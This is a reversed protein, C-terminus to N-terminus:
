REIVLLRTSVSTGSSKFSGDPLDEWVAKVSNLWDRFEQSKRDTRFAFAPSMIAVLIGNPALMDYTKRVHDMDQGREFPPNMIVREFEGVESRSLQMIDDGILNYGKLTLIERLTYNIEVVDLDINSYQRNIADAINGNGASPELVRMGRELHSRKLMLDVVAPPTPFFGPITSLKIEAEMTDIKRLRDREAQEAPNGSIYMQLLRAADSTDAYDDAEIVSFYGGGGTTSKRVMRGIEDKTRLARLADPFRDLQYLDALARLAKQLREMNRCDHLRSQYERNRKPTPNQSLPRSLHNIKEQLGDAWFRFRKALKLADPDPTFVKVPQQSRVLALLEEHTM